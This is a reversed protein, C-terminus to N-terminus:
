RHPMEAPELLPEIPRLPLDYLDAVADYVVDGLAINLGARLAPNEQM